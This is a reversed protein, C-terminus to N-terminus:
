VEAGGAGHLRDCRREVVADVAAGDPRPVLHAPLNIVDVDGGGAGAIDGILGCIHCRGRAVSLIAFLMLVYFFDFSDDTLFAGCFAPGIVAGVAGFNPIFQLLGALVAWLLAWPIGIILLGVQWIAAVCLSDQCQAIFWHKLATGTTRAHSKWDM